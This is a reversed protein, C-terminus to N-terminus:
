DLVESLIGKVAILLCNVSAEVTVLTYLLGAAGVHSSIPSNCHLM